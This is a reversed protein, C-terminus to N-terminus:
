KFAWWRYMGFNWFGVVGTAILKALIDHMGFHTLERLMLSNLLLAGAVVALFKFGRGHLGDHDRKFTWYNNLIFSVVVGFSFAVVNAWLFHHHWYRFTRTLWVYLAFDMATNTAGVVAFKVFEAVTHKHRNFIGFLYETM